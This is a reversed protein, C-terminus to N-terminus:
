RQGLPLRVVATTGIGAESELWISGGHALTIQRAIPLGLGTGGPDHESPVARYFREFVRALAQESIGVGNDSIRIEAEHAKFTLSATVRGGTPTYKLANDLLIIVLQRLRERDGELLCSEISDAELSVGSRFHQAEAMAEMMLEDLAVREVHLATGDGKALALLDTVLRGLRETGRAAELLAADREEQQMEPYRRVLQINGRIATLPARLEHSADSVFRGQAEHLARLQAETRTARAAVRRAEFAEMTIAALDELTRLQIEELGGPRAVTDYVCLTGINFGDPTRLPVGAYFRIGLQTVVPNDAFRADLTADPVVMVAEGLITHGCFSLARSNERLDTGICAKFLQRDRDIVTVMAIPAHLLRAVIQVLREFSAESATDMPDYRELALLRQAEHEPIPPAIMLAINAGL